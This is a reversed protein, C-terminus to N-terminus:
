CRFSCLLLYVFTSIQLVSSKKWELIYTTEVM